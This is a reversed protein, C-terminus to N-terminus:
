YGRHGYRARGGGHCNEGYNANYRPAPAYGYSDAYRHARKIPVLVPKDIVLAPAPAVAGVAPGPAPAVTVPAAAEATKPEIANATNAAEAINAPAAAVTTAKEVVIQRTSQQASAVGLSAGLILASLVSKKLISM